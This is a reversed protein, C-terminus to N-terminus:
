GYNGGVFTFYGRVHIEQRRHKKGSKCRYKRQSSLIGRALRAMENGLFYKLGELNKIEFEATM